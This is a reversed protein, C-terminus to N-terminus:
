CGYRVGDGNQTESGGALTALLSNFAENPTAYPPHPGFWSAARM